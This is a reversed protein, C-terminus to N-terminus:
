ISVGSMKSLAEINSLGRNVLDEYEKMHDAHSTNVAFTWPDVNVRLAGTGLPCDVFMESYQPNNNKITKLIELQVGSYPIIGKKAAAEYDPSELYFKFAANSLIVKGVPGFDETDLISQLVVGFSGKYKRARRYGEEIMKAFRSLDKHDQKKLITAAEEFLIFRSKSGRASLYLDQTVANMMQMSVVGLLESNNVLSELELVVFDDNSIDFTSKGNFFRGYRGKSGFETLNFAMKRAAEIAFTLQENVYGANENDIAYNKPFNRLFEMTCDIGNENNGHKHVQDIGLTLLTWEVETMKEGSLSYVMEALINRCTVKGLEIDEEDGHFDFPNSVILERQYDMYRGGHIQCLKKYGGGLDTIRIAAGAAKYASCFLNLKFTKGSGSSAAVLFNANPSAKSYVDLPVLNGKRSPFLLIPDCQTKFDSQVPLLRTLEKGTMFFHRDILEVNEDVHYFGLPLSAIFLIKQLTSEEQMKCNHEEWLRKARATMENLKDVTDSIIWLTTIVKYYYEGSEINDIAQSFEEIRRGLRKSFASGKKLMMTATAKKQIEAKFGAQDVIINMTLLFPCAIQNLDDSIGSFGGVLKNATVSDIKGFPTQMTLCKFFHENIVAPSERFDIKTSAEIVQKRIPVNPDYNGSSNGYPNTFLNRLFAILASPPMRSPALRASRLCEEVIAIINPDTDKDNKLTIFLRFNRTPIGFLTNIGYRGNLLHKAYENTSAKVLPTSLIKTAKYRDVIPAVNPDAYLIAQMVTNEPLTAKFLTELKTLFPASFAVPSCEWIYGVTNDMSLYQKDENAFLWPLFDSFKDRQTELELTSKTLGARSNSSFIM